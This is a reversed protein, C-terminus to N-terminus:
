RRSIRKWGDIKGEKLEGVGAGEKLGCLRTAACAATPEALESSALTVEAAADAAAAAAGGRWMRQDAAAAAAAGTTSGTSPGSPATASCLVCLLSRAARAWHVVVTVMVRVRRRPPCRCAVCIV